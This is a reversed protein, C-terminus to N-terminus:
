SSSSDESLVALALLLSLMSYELLGKLYSGQWMLTIATKHKLKSYTNSNSKWLLQSLLREPDSM